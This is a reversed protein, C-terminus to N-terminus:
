ATLNRGHSGTQSCWAFKSLQPRQLCPKNVSYTQRNALSQSAHLLAPWSSKREQPPATLWTVAIDWVPLANFLVCSRQKELRSKYAVSTAASTLGFLRSMKHTSAVSGHGQSTSSQKTACTRIAWSMTIFPLFFFFYKVFSLNHHVHRVVKKHIKTQEACTYLHM